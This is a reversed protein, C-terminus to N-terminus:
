QLLMGLYVYSENSYAAAYDSGVVQYLPQSTADIGALPAIAASTLDGYVGLGGRSGDHGPTGIVIM